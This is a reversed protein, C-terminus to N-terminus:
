RLKRRVKAVEEPSTRARLAKAGPTGLSSREILEAFSPEHDALEVWVKALRRRIDALRRYAADLDDDM